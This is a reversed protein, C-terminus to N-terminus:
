KASAHRPGAAIPKRHGAWLALSPYYRKKLGPRAARAPALAELWTTAVLM